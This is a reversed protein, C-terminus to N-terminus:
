LAGLLSFPGTPAPVGGAPELTVAAAQLDGVTDPVTIDIVKSGNPDTNFVEASVPNGSKPV